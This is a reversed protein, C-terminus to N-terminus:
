RVTTLYSKPSPPPHHELFWQWKFCMELGFFALESTKEDFSERFFQKERMTKIEVLM